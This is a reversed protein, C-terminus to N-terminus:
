LATVSTLNLLAIAELYKQVDTRVKEFDGKLIAEGDFMGSGPCIGYAGYRTLVERMNEKNIGGVAYTRIGEKTSLESIYKLRNFGILKEPLKIVIPAHPKKDKISLYIEYFQTPSSIEIYDKGSLKKFPESDYSTLIWKKTKLEEFEDRFPESIAKYLDEHTQASAPFFKQDAIGQMSARKVEDELYVGPIIPIKRSNAIAVPERYFGPSVLFRAGHNIAELATKKNKVSGVGINLNDKVCEDVVEQWHESNSTIEVAKVGAGFATKIAMAAHNQPTGPKTRLIGILKTNLYGTKIKPM